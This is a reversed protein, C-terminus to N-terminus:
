IYIYMYIYIYIFYTYMYYKTHVLLDLGGERLIVPKADSEAENRGHAFHALAQICAYLASVEERELMVRGMVVLQKM